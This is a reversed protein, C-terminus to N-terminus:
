AHPGTNLTLFHTRVGIGYGTPTPNANYNKILAPGACTWSGPLTADWTWALYGIDHADAWAMYDDVYAHKCDTNGIESSVVPYTAHLAVLNARCAALCSALDQGNNAGYTHEDVVLQHLPDSPAFAAWQSTDNSWDLGGLLIPATSGTHRIATVLAQMGPSHYPTTVDGGVPITCGNRWCSWTTDHPENYLDFLLGPVRSFTTAVSAWMATAEDDPMPLIHDAASTGDTAVHNDLIVFLGNHRLLKVFSTIASRYAAATNPVGHDGLWCNENIPLRVANINWTKMATVSAQSSPGDFFGYDKGLCMYETGSKNVGILRVNGGTTVLQNGHVSLPSATTTQTAIAHTSPTATAEARRSTACAATILVTMAAGAVVCRRTKQSNMSWQYAVGDFSDSEFLVSAGTAALIHGHRSSDAEEGRQRFGVAGRKDTM